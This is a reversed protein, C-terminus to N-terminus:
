AYGSNEYIYIYIYQIYIYIYVLHNLYERSSKHTFRAVDTGTTNSGGQIYTYTYIYIYLFPCIFSGEFVCLLKVSAASHESFIISIYM